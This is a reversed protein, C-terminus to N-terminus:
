CREWDTGESDLWPAIAGDKYPSFAFQVGIASSDTEELPDGPYHATVIGIMGRMSVAEGPETNTPYQKWGLRESLWRIASGIPPYKPHKM